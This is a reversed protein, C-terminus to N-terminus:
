GRPSKTGCPTLGMAVRTVPGRAALRADDVNREEEVPRDDRAAAPLASECVCAGEFVVLEDAAEAAERTRRSPLDEAAEFDAAALASEWRDRRLYASGPGRASRDVATEM